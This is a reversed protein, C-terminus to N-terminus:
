NDNNMVKYMFLNANETGNKQLSSETFMIFFSKDLYATSAYGYFPYSSSSPRDLVYRAKYKLPNLAAKNMPVLYVWLQSDENKLPDMGGRRDNVVIVMKKLNHIYSVDPAVSYLGGAINTRELASWKFGGDKSYTQLLAGKGNIKKYGKSDDRIYAIMLNGDTALSVEQTNIESTSFIKKPKSWEKGTKSTVFFAAGPSFFTQIYGHQVSYSMRDTGASYIDIDGFDLIKPSSWIVGDHSTIYNVSETGNGEDSQGKLPSYKRFFIVILGDKTIGGHVNRDDFESDYITRPNSWSLGQNCSKTVSINGTLGVHDGFQGPDLRFFHLLCDNKILLVGEASHGEWMSVKNINGSFVSSSFIVLFVCFLKVQMNIQKIREYPFNYNM